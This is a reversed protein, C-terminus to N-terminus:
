ENEDVSNAPVRSLNVIANRSSRRGGEGGVEKNVVLGSGVTIAETPRRGGALM